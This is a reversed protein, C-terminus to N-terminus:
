PQGKLFLVAGAAELGNIDFDSPDFPQSLVAFSARLEPAAKPPIPPTQPPKLPSAVGQLLPGDIAVPGTRM